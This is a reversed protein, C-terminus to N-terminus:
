LETFSYSFLYLLYNTNNSETFNTVYMIQNSKQNEYTLTQDSLINPDYQYLDNSQVVFNENLPQESTMCSTALANFDDEHRNPFESKSKRTKKRVNVTEEETGTEDNDLMRELEEEGVEYNILHNRKLKCKMRFWSYEPVSDAHRILKDAKTKPWFLHGDVEWASPVITLERRGKEITEVIKFM